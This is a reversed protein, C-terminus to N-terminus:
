AAESEALAPKLMERWTQLTANVSAEMCRLACELLEIDSDLAADV